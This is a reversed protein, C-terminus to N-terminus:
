DLEIDALEAAKAVNAEAIERLKANGRLATVRAQFADGRHQEASPFAGHERKWDAKARAIALRRIEAEVPDSERAARLVGAVLNALRKDALGRRESDTEGSVMADNLLQRLGYNVIHTKSVDPLADYDVDVHQNIKILPIRMDNEMTVRAHDGANRTIHRTGAYPDIGFRECQTNTIIGCHPDAGTLEM